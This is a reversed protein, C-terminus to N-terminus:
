WYEALQKLWLTDRWRLVEGDATFQEAILQGADIQTCFNSKNDTVVDAKLETVIIFDPAQELV